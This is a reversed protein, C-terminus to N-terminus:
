RGPIYIEPKDSGDIYQQQFVLLAEERLEDCDFTIGRAAAQEDFMKQLEALEGYSVSRQTM